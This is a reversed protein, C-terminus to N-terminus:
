VKQCPIVVQLMLKVQGLHGVACAELLRQGLVFRALLVEILCLLCYFNLLIDSFLFRQSLSHCIPQCETLFTETIGHWFHWSPVSSVEGPFSSTNTGSFSSSSFPLFFVVRPMTKSPLKLDKWTLPQCLLSWLIPLELILINQWVSKFHFHNKTFLFHQLTKNLLCMLFSILDYEPFHSM